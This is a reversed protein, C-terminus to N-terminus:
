AIGEALASSIKVEKDAVYVNGARDFHLTVEGPGIETRVGFQRPDEAITATVGGCSLAPGSYVFLIFLGLLTLLAAKKWYEM